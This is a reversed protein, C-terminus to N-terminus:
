YLIDVEEINPQILLQNVKSRSEVQVDTGLRVSTFSHASIFYQQVTTKGSFRTGVLAILM